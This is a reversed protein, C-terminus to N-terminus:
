DKSCWPILTTTIAATTVENTGGDNERGNACKGYIMARVHQMNDDDVVVSELVSVSSKNNILRSISSSTQQQHLVM